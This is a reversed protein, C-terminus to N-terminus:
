NDRAVDDDSLSASANMRANVDSTAAIVSQVCYGCSDDFVFHRASMFEYADVGALRRGAAYISPFV